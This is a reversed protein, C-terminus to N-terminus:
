ESREVVRRRATLEMVADGLHSAVDGATMAV